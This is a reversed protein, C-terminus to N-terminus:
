GVATEENGYGTTESPHPRPLAAVTAKFLDCCHMSSDNGTLRPYVGRKHTTLTEKRSDKADKFITQISCRADLGQVDM